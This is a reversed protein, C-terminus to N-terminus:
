MAGVRSKPQLSQIDCENEYSTEFTLSQLFGFYSYRLSTGWSDMGFFKM